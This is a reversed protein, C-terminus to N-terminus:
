LLKLINSFFFKEGEKKNEEVTLIVLLLNSM